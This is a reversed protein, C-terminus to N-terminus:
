SWFPLGATQPFHTSLNCLAPPTVGGRCPIRVAADHPQTPRRWCSNDVSAHVWAKEAPDASRQGEGASFTAAYGVSSSSVAQIAYVNPPSAHKHLLNKSCVGLCLVTSHPSEEDVFHISRRCATGRRRQLLGVTAAKHPAFLAARVWMGATCVGNQLLNQPPTPVSKGLLAGVRM